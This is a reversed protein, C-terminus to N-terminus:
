IKCGFSNLLDLTESVGPYLSLSKTRASRYAHIADDFVELVPRGASFKRLSPIEELLFAYESTGHHQHVSRIELKLKDPDMGTKEVVSDLMASFSNYWIEVWDFLTNDLDTILVNKRVM